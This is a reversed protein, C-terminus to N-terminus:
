WGGNIVQYEQPWLDHDSCATVTLDQSCRIEHVVQAIEIFSKPFLWWSRSIVQNSKAPWPWLLGNLHRLYGRQCQPTLIWGSNVTNNPRIEHTSRIVHTEFTRGDTRVNMWLFNKSKLSIQYRHSARCYATHGSGLDLDRARSLQFYM